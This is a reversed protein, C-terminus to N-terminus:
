SKQKKRVSPWGTNSYLMFTSAKATYRNTRTLSKARITSAFSFSETRPIASHKQSTTFSRTQENKVLAKREVPLDPRLRYYASFSFLHRTQQVLGRVSNPAPEGFRNLEGYFGGSSEDFGHRLWFDMAAELLAEVRERARSLRARITETPPRSPAVTTTVAVSSAPSPPPETVAIACPRCGMPGFGLIALLAARVLSNQHGNLRSFLVPGPRKRPHFVM